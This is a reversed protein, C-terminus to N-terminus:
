LKRTLIPSPRSAFVLMQVNCATSISLAEFSPKWHLTPLNSPGGVWLRDILEQLYELLSHTGHFLQNWLKCIINHHRKTQFIYFVNLQNLINMEFFEWHVYYM